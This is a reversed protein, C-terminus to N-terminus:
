IRHFKEDLEAKTGLVGNVLSPLYDDFSKGDLVIEYLSDISNNTPDKELAFLIQFAAQRSAHRSLKAM